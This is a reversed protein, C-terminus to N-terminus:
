SAMSGMDRQRTGLIQGPSTLQHLAYRIYPRCVNYPEERGNKRRLNAYYTNGTGNCYELWGLALMTLIAGVSRSISAMGEDLTGTGFNFCLYPETDLVECWKM